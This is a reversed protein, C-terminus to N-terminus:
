EYWDGVLRASELQGGRDVDWLLIKRNGIVVVLYAHFKRGNDMDLFQTIEPSELYQKIQSQPSDDHGSHVWENITKGKRWEDNESFKVELLEDADSIRSLARAKNLRAHGQGPDGTSEIALFDINISKWEIVTVHRPHLVVLDVRGPVVKGTSLGKQTVEFEPTITLLVNKLLSHNFSNAHFEETKDFDGHHVDRKSMLDQYLKLSETIDGTAAFIDIARDIDKVVLGYRDSVAAAIRRAAILNPIRMQKTPNHSDFTLGGHYLLFSQWTSLNDEGLDTLKLKQTLKSYSLPRFAGNSNRELAEELINRAIPSSACISLIDENVESHPPNHLQLAFPQNELRNQLYELCTTTNFVPEVKNYYCFHYGNVFNMLDSLEKEVSDVEPLIKLAAKVDDRTLGCLGSLTNRFSVDREVNFDSTLDALAVPSVGTIFIKEIMLHGISEKVAAYFGQLSGAPYSANWKTTDPDTYSNSLADYEDILLYIGKVRALPHRGENEGIVIRLAEEVSEVCQRLSEAPSDKYIREKILQMHTEGGLYPAYSRYFEMISNNIMSSLSLEARMTDCSREVAAFNLRLVLYQNPLIKHDRVDKAVDLGEFLM